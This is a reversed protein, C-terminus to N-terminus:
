DRAPTRGTWQSSIVNLDVFGYSARNVANWCHVDNHSDLSWVHSGHSVLSVIPQSHVNLVQVVTKQATDWVAMSGDQQGSFVATTTALVCRVPLRTRGGPRRPVALRHLIEGTGVDFVILGADCAAWVEDDGVLALDRAFDDQAM